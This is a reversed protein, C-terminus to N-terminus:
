GRAVLALVSGRDELVEQQCSRGLYVTIARVIVKEGLCRYVTRRSQLGPM